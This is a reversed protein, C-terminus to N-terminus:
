GKGLAWPLSKLAYSSPEQNFLSNLNYNNAISKQFM